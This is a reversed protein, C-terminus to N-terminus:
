PLKELRLRTIKAQEAAAVTLEHDPEHALRSALIALLEDAGKGSACVLYIHGFRQEYIRNLAVLRTRVDHDAGELGRQEERSWAAAKEGPAAPSEGIRPHHSFAELYDARALHGWAAEAAAFLAERTGFPRRALMRQVWRSAGCCRALAARAEEESLADLYAAPDAM